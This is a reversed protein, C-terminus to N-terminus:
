AKTKEKLIKSLIKHTQTNFNQFSTAASKYKLPQKTLQISNRRQFWWICKAYASSMGFIQKTLHLKRLKLTAKPNKKKCVNKTKEPM